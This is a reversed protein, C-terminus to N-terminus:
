KHLGQVLMLAREARSTHIAGMHGESVSLCGAGKGSPLVISYGGRVMTPLAFRFLGIILSIYDTILLRKSFLRIVESSLKM